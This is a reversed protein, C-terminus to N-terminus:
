AARTLQKWVPRIKTGGNLYMQANTQDTYRSGPGAQGVGTGWVGATTLAVAATPSTGTMLNDTAVLLLQPGGAAFTLTITGVGATMTGVATAVGGVGIAVLAELAADVAAVLTANVGVWTIPATTLGARRLRFTGGSPTGGITLTQIEATGNVPAGAGFLELFDGPDTAAPLGSVPPGDDAGIGLYGAVQGAPGVAQQPHDTRQTM